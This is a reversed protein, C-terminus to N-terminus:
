DDGFFFDYYKAQVVPDEEQNVYFPTDDRVLIGDDNTALSPDGGYKYSDSLRDDLDPVPLLNDQDPIESFSDIQEKQLNSPM